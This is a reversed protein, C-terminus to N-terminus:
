GQESKIELKNQISKVGAVNQAEREIKSKEASSQVPGKLVVNGNQTIIKVNHANSSLSDDKVIKQRIQRTIEVDSRNNKQSEATVESNSSRDRQNIETNDPQASTQTDASTIPSLLFMGLVFLSAIQTMCMGKEIHTM